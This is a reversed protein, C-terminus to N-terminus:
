NKSITEIFGKVEMPKSFMPYVHDIVQKQAEAGATAVADTLTVVKYGKDYADTMTANVCVHSLFGGLIVTDVGNSRLIHDLDTGSFASISSKGEVIIDEERVDIEDYIKAGWSGKEFANFDKVIKLIGYPEKGIEVHNKSFQIPVFYVPIDAARAAEIAENVNNKFNNGEVVDNVLGNLKGEPSLFDNQTEILVLATRTNDM